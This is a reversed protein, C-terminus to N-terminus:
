LTCLHSVVSMNVHDICWRHQMGTVSVFWFWQAINILCSITIHQRVQMIYSHHGIVTVTLIYVLV